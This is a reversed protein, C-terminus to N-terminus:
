FLMVPLNIDPVGDFRDATVREPRQAATLELIAGGMLARNLPERRVPQSTQHFWKSMQITEPAPPTVPIVYSLTPGLWSM